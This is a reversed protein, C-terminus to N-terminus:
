AVVMRVLLPYARVVRFEAAIERAASATFKQQAVIL